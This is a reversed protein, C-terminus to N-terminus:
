WKTLPNAPAAEQQGPSCSFCVRVCVYQFYLTLIIDVVIVAFSSLSFFFAYIYIYIYTRISTHESRVQLGLLTGMMQLSENTNFTVNANEHMGFVEPDDSTPLQEFYELASSYTGAPPAYYTGSKSFKCNEDLISPSMYISLISMLCRRDWDDTVRGGYNIQGTVYNLADWPLVEQEVLFRRLVVRVCCVCM